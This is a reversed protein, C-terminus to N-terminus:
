QNSTSPGPLSRTNKKARAGGPSKSNKLHKKQFLGLGLTWSKMDLHYLAEFFKEPEKQLEVVRKIEDALLIRDAQTTEELTTTLFHDVDLTGELKMYYEKTPKPGHTLPEKEFELKALQSERFAGIDQSEYYDNWPEYAEEKEDPLPALAWVEDDDSFEPDSWEPFGAEEMEDEAMQNVLELIQERSFGMDILQQYEEETFWKKKKGKRRLAGIHKAHKRGRGHKTKGKAQKLEDRLVMIERGIASRILDVIDQDNHKCQLAACPPINDLGAPRTPDYGTPNEPNTIVPIPAPRLASDEEQVDQIPVERAKLAAELEAVRARLDHVESPKAVPNIDEPLLIVAGGTYGTNTQHVGLVRGDVDLVPAGSMGNRTPTAYSISDAHLTGPTTATTFYGEGDPAVVCVWSCDRKRSVKMRPFAQLEPPIKLLVIDKELKKSVTTTYTRGAVILTAVEETNLVHAATVVYNGCFFATGLQEGARVRLLAGPQLRVMPTIGTRLQKFRDKVSQAFKFLANPTTNLKTEVRGEPNRVEITYGGVIPLVRVLRMTFVVYALVSPTHGLIVLLHAFLSMAAAAINAKLQMAYTVDDTVLGLFIAFFAQFLAATVGYYPDIFYLGMVLISLAASLTTHLPALALMAFRFHSLTAMVMYCIALPATPLNALAYFSLGLTVVHWLYHHCITQVIPWLWAHKSGVYGTTNLVYDYLIAIHEKLQANHDTFYESGPLPEIVVQEEVPTPEPENVDFPHPFLPCTNSTHHGYVHPQANGSGFLAFLLVGILFGMCFRRLSSTSKPSKPKNREVEHRLCIAENQVSALDRKLADREGTLHEKDYLLLGVLATTPDPVTAPVEHWGDLWM